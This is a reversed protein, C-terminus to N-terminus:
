TNMQYSRFFKELEIVKETETTVERRNALLCYGAAVFLDFKGMDQEIELCQKLIETHYERSGHYTIYDDFELYIQEQVSTITTEGPNRVFEKTKRDKRHFLYGQYGNIDFYDWILPVNIETHMECGFYICMKLMDEAYEQPSPRNLYTCCFTHTKYDKIDIDERDITVDLRMFVAGGGGSGKGGNVEKYKFPDSGAIFKNKNTPLKIGGSMMFKNAEKPSLTKSMRFKGQAHPICVVTGFKIGDVWELNYTQIFKNGDKFEDIRNELITANFNCDKDHTRFCDKITFPNKRRREALLNPKDKVSDFSHQIDKKSEEILSNGFEDMIYGRYAPTFHQWLNSETRGRADLASVVIGNSDKKYFRSADWIIKYNKGGEKEMEEVTSTHLSKGRITGNFEMCPKVKEWRIDVKVDKVKGEEDGIYTDLTQGDYAIELSPKCDILSQLEVQQIYEGDIKSGKGTKPPAFFKLEEKPNSSNSCNPQFFYPLRRWPSVIFKRFFDVADQDTKSQLGCHIGAKKTGRDYFICGAKASKGAQRRTIEILGMCTPDNEAKWWHLFFERQVDRYDMYGSLTIWWNLFLYNTGSIWTIEGNNMFWYGHVRRKWEQNIFAMRDSIPLQNFKKPLETRYFKQKAQPLNYNAIKKLDPPEPLNIVVPTMDEIDDFLVIESAYNKYKPLLIAM